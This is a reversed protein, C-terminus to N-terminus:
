LTLTLTCPAGPSRIECLGTQGLHVWLYSPTPSTAFKAVFAVWNGAAQVASGTAFPNEPLNYHGSADTTGGWLPTGSVAKSGGAVGYLSVGVSAMPQGLNDNLGLQVLEPQLARAQQAPDLNAGSLNILAIDYDCWAEGGPSFATFCAPRWATGSVPNNAALVSAQDMPFAGRLLGLLRMIRWIQADSFLQSADAGHPLAITRLARMRDYDLTDLGMTWLLRISGDTAPAVLTAPDAPLTDLSLLPFRIPNWFNAPSAFKAQTRSILDAVQAQVPGLGGAQTVLAPDISVRLPFTWAAATDSSLPAEGSLYEVSGFDESAYWTPQATDAYAMPFLLLAPSALEPWGTSDPQAPPATRAFRFDRLAVSTSRPEIRVPILNLTGYGLWVLDLRGSPLSDIAWSGDLAVEHVSSQGPVYLKLSALETFDPLLLHGHLRIRPLLRLTTPQAAERGAIRLEADLAARGDAGEALAVWRGDALSDVGFAGTSDTWTTEAATVPTTTALDPRIRQLVVRIGALPQGTSDEVFGLVPTLSTEGESATGAHDTGCSVLAALLLGCALSALRTM